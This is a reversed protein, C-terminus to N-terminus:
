TGNGGESFPEEGPAVFDKPQNEDSLQATLGRLHPPVRRPKGRSNQSANTAPSEPDTATKTQPGAGTDARVSDYDVDDNTATAAGIGDGADPHPRQEGRFMARSAALMEPDMNRRHHRLTEDIVRLLDQVGDGVVASILHVTADEQQDANSAIDEALRRRVSDASELECKTVVVIEPRQALEESYQALEGRIAHYNEIPDSQDDPSPEVLHVLIGAREVHRLFEHGLGIGESAGEILGPIDAIVFSDGDYDVIGLNPFKTTFPYSAIEPRAASVRSLLTSKGANPMGILGVDAISKLELIVSREEGETGRTHQRPAQNTASKFHTNGKGGRGGAAIVLQDGDHILDRIVFGRQADIVTTGPPVLIKMDKGKRGHRKSGQGPMGKQAKWFRRGVMAALSNVGSQAVLLISGGHGGDGGDPGGKPVYKERRFSSCGDGGRGAILEIQVRDAFM